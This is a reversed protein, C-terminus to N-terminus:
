SRFGVVFCLELPCLFDVESLNKTARGSSRADLAPPFSIRHYGSFKDEWLFRARFFGLSGAMREIQLPGQQVRGVIMHRVPRGSQGPCADDDRLPLHMAADSHTSLGQDALQKALHFVECLAFHILWSLGRLISKKHRCLFESRLEFLTEPALTFDESSWTADVEDAFM